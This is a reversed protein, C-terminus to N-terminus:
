VQHRPCWWSTRGGVTSRVLPSGDRPCVGGPARHEMLDGLHSGGRASLDTIVRRLVRHLRRSETPSLTGAPRFPSLGARWLVEDALLNGIGAVRAQDLLRAKLPAQSGQLARTLQAPTITAADPGLGSVDPDLFVGGLRRPDRVAMTGGDAFHVAWREWAPDHRRPTALLRDVGADGDVVLTGTMGFRIGLTAGGTTDLVLLKGIRRAATFAQGELAGALVAGDVGGKLFWPDPSAVSSVTRDLAREALLRYREVEPLEPVTRPYGASPRPPRLLGPAPAM